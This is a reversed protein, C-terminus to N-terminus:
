DGDPTGLLQALWGVLGDWGITTGDAASPAAGGNAVAVGATSPTQPVGSQQPPLNGQTHAPGNPSSAITGARANGAPSSAVNDASLPQAAARPRHSRSAVWDGARLERGPGEDFLMSLETLANAPGCAANIKRFVAAHLHPGTSNGSNGSRGLREGQEVSQGDRVGVADFHAYIGCTYDLHDVVEYNGYQSTGSGTYTVQGGHMAFVDEYSMGFDIAHRGYGHETVRVVIRSQGFAYPLLLGGYVGDAAEAPAAQGGAICLVLAAVSFLWRTGLSRVGSMRRM